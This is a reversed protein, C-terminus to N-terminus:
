LVELIMGITMALGVAIINAGALNAIRNDDANYVIAIASLWIIVYALSFFICDM